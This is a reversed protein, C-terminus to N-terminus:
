RSEIFDRMQPFYNAPQRTSLRSGDAAVEFEYMGHEAHPFVTLRIPAGAKALATLRRVTEASPADIDQAGLLWLQPTRLNRLVPLADYDLSAGPFLTPGVSRLEAEPKELIFYSVNGRVFKFWPEAGYRQKIRAVQEYGERFDSELVAATADAVQMAKAVVDPGYGRRTMDLEIAARDEDLPSVALGFSVIVFDAPEIQAALPAVWGGQSGAQYGMKGARAGALRRAERLAAIADNALTLFNQTYRGGSAGTGRKDYVFAGIGESPFQRQLAYYDRASDRESGHVLVVIPVRSKGPPLVLRGSLTAGGSQFRTETVDFALRQGEVRDFAIRGAACDRLAIQHGDARETWGRTSSWDGPAAWSLKGSTGDKMRWRYHSEDSVAIDVDRGDSLRYSGICSKDTPEAASAPLLASAALLACLALGRRLLSPANDM